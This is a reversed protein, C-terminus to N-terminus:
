ALIVCVKRLLLWQLIRSALFSVHLLNRLSCGCIDAAVACFKTAQALQPRQM